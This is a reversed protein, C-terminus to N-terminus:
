VELRWMGWVQSPDWQSNGHSQTGFQSGGLEWSHRKTQRDTRAVGQMRKSNTDTNTRLDSEGDVIEFALQAGGLAVM